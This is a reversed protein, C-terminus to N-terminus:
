MGAQMKLNESSVVTSAHRGVSLFYLSEWLPTSFVNQCKVDFYGIRSKLVICSSWRGSILSFSDGAEREQVIAVKNEWFEWSPRDRVVADICPVSTYYLLPEAAPLLSQLSDNLSCLLDCVCLLGGQAGQCRCSRDGVYLQFTSSSM